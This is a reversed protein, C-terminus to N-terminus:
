PQEMEKRKPCWILEPNDFINGIIEACYLPSDDQEYNWWLEWLSIFNDNFCFNANNNHPINSELLGYDIGNPFYVGFAGHGQVVVGRMGFVDLIHGKFIGNGNMDDLGTYQCITEPDIEFALINIEESARDIKHVSSGCVHIYCKGTLGDVLPFGEVWWDVWWFQKALERWGKQKAKFLATCELANKVM